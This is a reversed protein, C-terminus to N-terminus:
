ECKLVGLKNLGDIANQISEKYHVGEFHEDISAVGTIASAILAAMAENILGLDKITKIMAEQGDQFGDFYCNGIREDIKEMLEM